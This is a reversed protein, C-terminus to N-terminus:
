IQAVRDGPQLTTKDWHDAGKYLEDVKNFNGQTSYAQAKIANEIPDSM